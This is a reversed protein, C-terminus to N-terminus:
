YFFITCLTYREPQILFLFAFVANRIFFRNKYFLQFPSFFM